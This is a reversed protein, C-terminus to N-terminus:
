GSIRLLSGLTTFWKKASVQKKAKVAQPNIRVHTSNSPPLDPCSYSAFVSAGIKEGKTVRSVVQTSGSILNSNMATRFFERGPGRKLSYSLTLTCGNREADSTASFQLQGARSLTLALAISSEEQDGGGGGGGGGGPTPTPSTSPKPSPTATPTPTATATPTPTPTPTGTRLPLCSYNTAVLANTIETLSTQSFRLTSLGEGTATSGMIGSTTHEAGYNHGIEHAITVPTVINSTFQSTGVALSQSECIVGVYAIGITSGTFDVGTMLHYLDANGFVSKGSVYTRFNNVIATADSSGASASSNYNTDVTVNLFDWEINLQETYVLEAEQTFL